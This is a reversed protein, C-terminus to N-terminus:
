SKKQKKSRKMPFTMSVIIIVVGFIFFYFEIRHLLFQVYMLSTYGTILLNLYALITVGGIVAFSFGVLVFFLRIM